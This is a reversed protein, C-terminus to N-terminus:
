YLDCIFGLTIQFVGLQSGLCNHTSNYTASFAVLHQSELDGWFTALTHINSWLLSHLNFALKQLELAGDLTGQEM